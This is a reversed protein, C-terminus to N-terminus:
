RSRRRIPRQGFRAFMADAAKKQSDSLSAYLEGFAPVFKKLAEAHADVLREYWHLSADASTAKDQAREQLLADLAQANATMVNAMAKFKAEQAASIRLKAHLEAIRGKVQQEPGSGKTEAVPRSRNEAFVPKALGPWAIAAPGSLIVTLVAAAVAGSMSKIPHKM